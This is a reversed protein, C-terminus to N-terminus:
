EGQEKYMKEFEQKARELLFLVEKTDGRYVVYGFEDLRGGISIRLAMPDDAKRIIQWEEPSKELTNSMAMMM